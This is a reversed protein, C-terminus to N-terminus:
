MASVALAARCATPAIRRFSTHCSTRLQREGAAATLLPLAVRLRGLAADTVKRIHEPRSDLGHRTGDSRIAFGFKTAIVVRERGPALAEGLLDENAFPGHAEATDFLTVGREVAARILAVLLRRREVVRQAAESRPPPTTDIRGM